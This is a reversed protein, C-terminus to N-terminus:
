VRIKPFWKGTSSMNQGANVCNSGRCAHGHHNGILAVQVNLMAIAEANNLYLRKFSPNSSPIHSFKPYGTTQAQILKNLRTPNTHGFRGISAPV